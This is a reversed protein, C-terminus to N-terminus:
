PPIQMCEEQITATIQISGTTIAVSGAGVSIEMIRGGERRIGTGKAERAIRVPCEEQM